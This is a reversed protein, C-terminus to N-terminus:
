SLMMWGFAVARSGGRARARVAAVPVPVNSLTRAACNRRRGRGLSGVCSRGGEKGGELVLRTPGSSFFEMPIAWAM